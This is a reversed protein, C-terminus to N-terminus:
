GGNQEGTLPIIREGKAYSGDPDVAVAKVRLAPSVGKAGHLKDIDYVYWGKRSAYACVQIALDLARHLNLKKANAM